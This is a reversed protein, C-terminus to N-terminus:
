LIRRRSRPRWPYADRLAQLKIVKLGVLVPKEGDNEESKRACCPCRELPSCGACACM